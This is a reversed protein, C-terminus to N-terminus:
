PNLPEVGAALLPKASQMTGKEAKRRFYPPRNEWSSLHVEIRQSESREGSTRYRRGVSAGARCGDGWSKRHARIVEWDKRERSRSRRNKV